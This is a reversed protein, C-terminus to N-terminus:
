IGNKGKSPSPACPTSAYLSAPTFSFKQNPVSWSPLSKHDLVQCPACTDKNMPTTAANSSINMPTTYPAIDPKKPPRISLTM